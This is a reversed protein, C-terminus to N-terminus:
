ARRSHTGPQPDFAGVARPPHIAPLPCRWSRPENGVAIGRLHGIRNLMGDVISTISEELQEIRRSSFAPLLLRRVRAHQEGDMQTIFQAFMVKNFQEWGPGRPMESNFTETESFVRQVDAYRGVVVQPPGKGLVYFPRRRAWEAMHRHANAKFEASGLDVDVVNSPDLELPLPMM